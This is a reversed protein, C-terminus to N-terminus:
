RGRMTKQTYGAPVEFMSAPIAEERWVKVLDEVPALRGGEYPRSRVPFGGVKELAEFENSMMGQLMPISTAMDEFTKAFKAFVAQINEQGPLASFPVVCIQEDLEGNRKIDWLKCTRGDVKDTKGLDVAEVKATTGGADAKLGMAQEMKARQEAPLKALQEKVRDMTAGVEKGLQAMTAKDVMIYSKESDDIIYMADGKIISSQGEDNVFRGSGDQVYMKQALKTTGTALNHEVREVYVGASAGHAFITACIASILRKM